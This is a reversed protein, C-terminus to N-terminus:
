VFVGTRYVDVVFSRQHTIQAPTGVALGAVSVVAPWPEYALTCVYEVLHPAFAMGLVGEGTQAASEWANRVGVRVSVRPCGSLAEELAVQVEHAQSAAQTTASGPSAALAMVVDPALRDFRAVADLYIGLNFVIVVVAIVVPAVVAMEVAMQGELEDWERM